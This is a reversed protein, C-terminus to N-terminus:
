FVFPYSINITFLNTTLIGLFAVRLSGVQRIAYLPFARRFEDQRPYAVPDANTALVQMRPHVAHLADLLHDAGNFFDHNGIMALDYGMLEMMQLVGQAGSESFYISGESWDGADM